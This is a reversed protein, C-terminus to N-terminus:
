AVELFQRNHLRGDFTIFECITDLVSNLKERESGSTEGDAAFDLATVALVRVNRYFIKESDSIEMTTFHPSIGADLDGLDVAESEIIRANSAIANRRYRGLPYGSLCAKTMIILLKLRALFIDDISMEHMDQPTSGLRIM